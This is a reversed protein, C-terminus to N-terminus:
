LVAGRLTDLFKQQFHVTEIRTPMVSALETFSSDSHAAIFVRSVDPRNKLEELLRPVGAPHFLVVYHSDAPVAFRAAPDFDEIKGVGGAALWLLPHLDAFSRGMEVLMPDLYKLRFFEVNEEFGESYERGDLYTGEVPKGDPRIGSVAAKIRPITAGVFIGHAEFDPDGRFTGNTNLKVVDEARVDNNTVLISRRRGDDDANLLMTAHTTTGSGGFFDVILAEPKDHVLIDLTDRVAYLSKPFSFVNTAGLFKNLLTSGYDGANHRSRHWVTKVLLRPTEAFKVIVANQSDRGLVEVQGSLIEKRVKDNLYLVSWTKRKEDYQGLKLVGDALL